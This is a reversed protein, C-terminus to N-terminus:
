DEVTSKYLIQNKAAHTVEKCSMGVDKFLQKIEDKTRFFTKQTHVSYVYDDPAPTSRISSFTSYLVGDSDLVKKVNRLANKVADDNLHIWVAYSWAIDIPRDVTSLDFNDNYIFQPRKKRCINYDLEKDIACEVIDKAFDIGVYKGANLYPILRCGLRLSGCGLDLFRTDCTLKNLNTVYDYQWDSVLDWNGGVWQRAQWRKM